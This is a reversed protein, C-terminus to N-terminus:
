KEIAELMDLDEFSGFSGPAPKKEAWEWITMLPITEGTRINTQVFRGQKLELVVNQGAYGLWQIGKENLLACQFLGGVRRIKRKIVEAKLFGMVVMMQLKPQKFSFGYTDMLVKEVAKRNEEAIGIIKVFTEQERDLEGPRSTSPKLILISWEPVYPFWSPKEKEQGNPSIWRSHKERKPEVTAIMFSLRKRDAADLARYKCRIWGELDQRLKDAVPSSSYRRVNVRVLDMVEYAGQLPGSFGMVVRDGIQYIKQLYDDVEDYPPEYSVRCDAIVAVTKWYKLAVILTM